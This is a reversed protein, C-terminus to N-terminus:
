EKGKCGRGRKGRVPVSPVPAEAHPPSYRVDWAEMQRKYGGQRGYDGEGAESVKKVFFSRHGKGASAVGTTSKGDRCRRLCAWSLTSARSRLLSPRRPFPPDHQTASPRRCPSLASLFRDSPTPSTPYLHVWTHLADM